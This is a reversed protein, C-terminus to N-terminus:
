GPMVLATAMTSEPAQSRTSSIRMVSDTSQEVYSDAPVWVAMPNEQSGSVGPSASLTASSLATNASDAAIIASAIPASNSRIVNSTVNVVAVPSVSRPNM